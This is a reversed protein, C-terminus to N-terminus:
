QTGLRRAEQRERKALWKKLSEIRKRTTFKLESNSELVKIEWRLDEISLESISQKIKM